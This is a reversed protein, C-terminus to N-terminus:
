EEHPETTVSQRVSLVKRARRRIIFTSVGIGLLVILALPVWVVPQSFEAFPSLEPTYEVVRENGAKDIAKVMIKSHLKQDRLIYPSEGRVWYAERPVWSLIGFRGPDTELIEYHDLGSQKDITSFAIYHKNNGLSPGPVLTIDFLEPAITDNKIDALWTNASTSSGEAASLEVGTVSLPAPTGQGDHLIVQTEPLVVLSAQSSTSTYMGPLATVVLRAITNTLGPDGEVRGCYGGPVGGELLIRGTERAGDREIRPPVTWLSFVSDGIGIDQVSLLSPDYALAIRAANICEGQADIRIPIYSTDTNTVTPSAPDLYVRAAYVPVSGISLLMTVFATRIYFMRMRTTYRM